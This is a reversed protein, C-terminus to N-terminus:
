LFYIEPIIPLYITKVNYIHDDFRVNKELKQKFQVSINGRYQLFFLPKVGKAPMKQGRLQVKEGGNKLQPKGIIKHLVDNIIKSTWNELYQNIALYKWKGESRQWFKEM